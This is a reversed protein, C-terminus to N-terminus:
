FKNKLCDKNLKNNYIFHLIITRNEYKKHVCYMALDQTNFLLYIQTIRM